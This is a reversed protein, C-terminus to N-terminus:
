VGPRQHRRRAGRERGGGDCRRHRHPRRRDSRRYRQRGLQRGVHPEGNPEHVLRYGLHWRQRLGLPISASRRRSRELRVRRVPHRRGEAGTYAGGAIAQPPTDVLCALCFESTNGGSGTATATLFQGAATAATLVQDFAAHGSGDTTVTISGLWQQGEGYGSPDPVDNAYFDITFTANAVSDLTGVVHTTAGPGAAAIVPFNQVNNPGADADLPDNVTVGNGGLDIGLSANSYIANARIGNGTSASDVVKVGPGANFVITNALSGAGGIQNSDPANSIAVGGQANGLAIAGTEDTGICNGAVVNNSTGTGDNEIGDSSNGSIVNREAADAVGDGNTGIRNSQDSAIYVGVSSNGLSLTGSANTGIYNGAVM